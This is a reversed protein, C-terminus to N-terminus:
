RKQLHDYGHLLKRLPLSLRHSSPHITGIRTVAVKFPWRKMKSERGKPVTFLLEYDEGDNMAESISAGPTRPIKELDLDFSVHSASALRPLDAGLGDSLDMLSSAIKRLWSGEQIRPLFHLHKSTRTRGLCGTVWIGDGARATSRLLPPTGQVEGLASVSIWFERSRTTEGGVLQFDFERALKEIGRYIGQLRQVSFDKPLGLTMMAAVPTGGMAAFDSIVRAIAKRGILPAPTSPLFHVGEVVADTKLLHFHNKSKGRLVACDDGVGVILKGSPKWRHTLTSILQSENM